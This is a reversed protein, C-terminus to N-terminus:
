TPAEEGVLAATTYHNTPRDTLMVSTLRCRLIEGGRKEQIFGEIGMGLAHARLLDIVKQALDTDFLRATLWLGVTGDPTAREEITLLRGIIQESAGRPWWTIVGNALFDRTDCGATRIVEGEDDVHETTCFGAILSTREIPM